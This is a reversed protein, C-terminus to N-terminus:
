KVHTHTGTSYALIYAANVWCFAGQYFKLADKPLHWKNNKNTQSATSTKNLQVCHKNSGRTACSEFKLSGESLRWGSTVFASLSGGNLIEVARSERLTPLASQIWLLAASFVVRSHWSANMTWAVTYWDTTVTSLSTQSDPGESPTQHSLKCLLKHSFPVFTVSQCFVRLFIFTIHFCLNFIDRSTAIIVSM